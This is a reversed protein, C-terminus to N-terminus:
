SSSWFTILWSSGWCQSPSCSMCAFFRPFSRDEAMYGWSYIHTASAVGTVMLMMLLSLPDLRLGFDVQLDGVSLWTLSSESPAPAWGAWGIFVLSLVFAATVAGISLTASVTRNHQTWITIVVAALLPLLLITWVLANM